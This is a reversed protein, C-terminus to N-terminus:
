VTALGTPRREIELEYRIRGDALVTAVSAHREWLRRSATNEAAVTGSVHEIGEAAAQALVAAFARRCHGLRRYRTGVWYGIRASRGDPSRHSISITGVAVGDALIAFTSARRPACWAALEDLFGDAAPRNDPAIGLDTRLADDEGLIEALQEAESQGPERIVIGVM